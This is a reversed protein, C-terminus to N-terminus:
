QIGSSLFVTDRHFDLYKVQESNFRGVNMAGLNRLGMRDLSEVHVVHSVLVRGGDEFSIFGRDFLHDVSPTRM